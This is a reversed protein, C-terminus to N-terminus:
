PSEGEPRPGCGVVDNFPFSHKHVVAFDAASQRTQTM